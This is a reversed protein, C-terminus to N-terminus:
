RKTVQARIEYNGVGITLKESSKNLISLDYVHKGLEWGSTTTATFSVEVSGNTPTTFSVVNSSAIANADDTDNETGYKKITFYITCSSLDYNGTGTPNGLKFGHATTDGQYAHLKSASISYVM